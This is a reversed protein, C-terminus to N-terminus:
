ATLFLDNPILSFSKIECGQIYKVTMNFTFTRRMSKFLLSLTYVRYRCTEIGASVFLTKRLSNLTVLFFYIVIWDYDTSALICNYLLLHIYIELIKQPRHRPCLLNKSNWSLAEPINWQLRYYIYHIIWKLRQFWHCYLIFFVNIMLHKARNPVM